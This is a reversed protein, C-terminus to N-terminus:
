YRGHWKAETPNQILAKPDYLWMWVDDLAVRQRDYSCEWESSVQFYRHCHYGLTPNSKKPDRLVVLVVEGHYVGSNWLIVTQPNLGAETTARLEALQQGGYLKDLRHQVLAPAIPEVAM